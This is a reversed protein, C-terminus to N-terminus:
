KTLQSCAFKEKTQLVMPGTLSYELVSVIVRHGADIAMQTLHFSPRGLLGNFELIATTLLTPKLGEGGVSAHDKAKSSTNAAAEFEM